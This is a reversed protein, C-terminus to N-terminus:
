VDRVVLNLVRNPVYIVKIIDKGNLWKELSEEGRAIGLATAEDTDRAATISGRLKGNVQIAITVESGALKLPDHEPWAATHISTDHGLEHWLEETLFPAFPALLMLLTEYADNPIAEEKELANGFIMLQSVATNMRFAEIDEGVKKITQHMITTAEDSMGSSEHSIVKSKLKVIRELFRRAGVLGDTSWQTAQEFPG